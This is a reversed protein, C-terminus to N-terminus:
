KADFIDSAKYLLDQAAYDSFTNLNMIDPTSNTAVLTRGKVLIDDWSLNTHEVKITPNAAEFRANLDAYYAPMADTYNPTIIKITTAAQAPMVSLVTASLSVAAIASLRRLGIKKM